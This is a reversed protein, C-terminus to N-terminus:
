FWARIGIVFTTDDVDEGVTRLLDRTDGFSREYNVGIYPAFERRVEYRLRLGLEADSLGSGTGTQPIDQAAFNFEAEPQLILRQTLRLDYSAELRGSLDGDDSLFVAGEIEFWYPALTELGVTAHTRSGPEFDQRLGLQVDTYRAVARSYLLQTEADELDSGGEGESKFVVRNIDGGYWIEGDWHYGNEGSGARYEALNLMAKLIREGGHEENLISRARDMDATDYVSDAAYDGPAPPPPELGVPLQDAASMEAADHARHDAAPAQETMVHGAHADDSMAPAPDPVPQQAPTAEHGVHGAAPAAAPAQPFQSADDSAPMAHGVHAGTEQPSETAAVSHGEHEDQAYAVSSMALVLAVSSLAARKM